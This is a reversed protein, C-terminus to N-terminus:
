HVTALRSSHASADSVSACVLLALITTSLHIAAPWRQSNTTRSVRTTCSAHVIVYMFPPACERRHPGGVISHTHAVVIEHIAPGSSRSRVSMPCSALSAQQIPCLFREHLRGYVKVGATCAYAARLGARDIQILM